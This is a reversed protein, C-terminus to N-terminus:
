TASRSTGPGVRPQTPDVPEFRGDGRNILVSVTDGDFDATALDLKGDGDLDGTAVSHAGEGSRYRRATGLRGRGRNLLVSVIGRPRTSATVLDKKGDGNLDAIAVADPFRETPYKRPESFSPRRPDAFSLWFSSDSGTALAVGSCALLM